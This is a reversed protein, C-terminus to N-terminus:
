GYLKIKFYKYLIEYGSFSLPTIFILGYIVQKQDGSAIYPIVIISTLLYASILFFKFRTFKNKFLDLFLGFYLFFMMGVAFFNYKFSLKLNLWSLLTFLRVTYVKLSYLPNDLLACFHNHLSNYEYILCKNLTKMVGDDITIFNFGNYILDTQLYISAFPELTVAFISLYWFYLIFFILLILFNIIPKTNDVLFFKYFLIIFVTFFVKGDNKLTLFIFIFFLIKFINHQEYKSLFFFSIMFLSITIGAHNLTHIWFVIFPNCVIFITSLISTIKSFNFNILSKYFLFSSLYFIVYQVETYYNILNVNELTRIFLTYTFYLHWANKTGSVVGDFFSDLNLYRGADYSSNLVHPDHRNYMYTSSIYYLIFYGFILFFKKQTDNFYM